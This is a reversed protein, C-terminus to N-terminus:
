YKKHNTLDIAIRDCFDIECFFTSRLFDIGVFFLRDGLFFTSRLFFFYIAHFFLRDWLLDGFFYIQVFLRDCLRDSFFFDILLLFFTSRCFFLRDFTFFFDIEFEIALFSTSRNNKSTSGFPSSSSRWICRQKKTM